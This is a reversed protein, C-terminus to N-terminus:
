FDNKEYTWKDKHNKKGDAYWTLEAYESSLQIYIGHTFHYSFEKKEFIFMNQSSTFAKLKKIDNDKGSKDKNWHAKFEFYAFNYKNCGRKHIIIDPIAKSREPDNEIAFFKCSEGNRNYEPDINYETYEKSFKSKFYYWFYSSICVENVCKEILYYDSSYLINLTEYIQNKLEEETINCETISPYLCHSDPNPCNKCQEM